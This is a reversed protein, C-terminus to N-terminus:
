QNDSDDPVGKRYMHTFQADYLKSYNYEDGLFEGVM